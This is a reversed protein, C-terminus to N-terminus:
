NRRKGIRFEFDEAPNNVIYCWEYEKITEKYIEPCKFADIISHHEGIYISGNELDLYVYNADKNIRVDKVKVDMYLSSFIIKVRAESLDHQLLRKM